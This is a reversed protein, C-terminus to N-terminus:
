IQIREFRGERVMSGFRKDMEEVTLNSTCVLIINKKLNGNIYDLWSNWSEMSTVTPHYMDKIVVESRAKLRSLMADVEDLLVVVPRDDQTYYLARKMSWLEPSLNDVM